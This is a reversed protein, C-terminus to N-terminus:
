RHSRPRSSTPDSGLRQSAAGETTAAQDFFVSMTAAALTGASLAIGTVVLLLGSLGGLGPGSYLVAAAIVATMAWRWQRAALCWLALASSGFPMGTLGATSVTDATAIRWGVAASLLAVAVPIIQRM